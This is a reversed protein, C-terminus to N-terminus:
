LKISTCIYIWKCDNCIKSLLSKDLIESRVRSKFQEWPMCDGIEFSCLNLCSQDYDAVKQGSVCQGKNNHPCSVCIDDTGSVLRIEENLSLRAIVNKMNSIFEGSYGEGIFHQICLGHHPRLSIM